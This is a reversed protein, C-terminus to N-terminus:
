ARRRPTSRATRPTLLLGLAGLVLLVGGAVVLPVGAPHRAARGTAAWSLALGPAPATGDTAALVVVGGADAYGADSATPWTLAATGAGTASALWVDARRPDAAAGTGAAATLARPDDLEGGVGTVETRRADALWATVDAARAVALFVDADADDGRATATLRVDPGSLELLGPASVVAVGPDTSRETVAIRDAPAFATLALTGAVACAAGAALLFWALLRRV